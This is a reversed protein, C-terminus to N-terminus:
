PVQVGAGTSGFLPAYREDSWPRGWPGPEKLHRHYCHEGDFLLLPEGGYTVMLGTGDETWRVALAGFGWYAGKGDNYAAEAIAETGLLFPTAEQPLRRADPLAAPPHTRQQFREPTETRNYIWCAAKLQTAPGNYDAPTVPVQGESVRTELAAKIELAPDDPLQNIRFRRAPLEAPVLLWGALGDDFLRPQLPPAASAPAEAASADDTQEADEEQCDGPKGGRIEVWKDLRYAGTRVELRQVTLTRDVTVCGGLGYREPGIERAQDHEDVITFVGRDYAYRVRNDDCDWGLGVTTSCRAVEATVYRPDQVAGPRVFVLHRADTFGWGGHEEMEIVYLDPPGLLRRVSLSFPDPGCETYPETVLGDPASIAVPEEGLIELTAEHIRVSFAPDGGQRLVRLPQLSFPLAVAAGEPRWDGAIRDDTDLRGTFRGSVPGSEEAREVLRVEDGRSGDDQLQVEPFRMRNTLPEYVGRDDLYYWASPEEYERFRRILLTMPREGIAGSYAGFCGDGLLRSLLGEASPSSGWALLGALLLAGAIPKLM